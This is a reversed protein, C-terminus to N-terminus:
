RRLDYPPGPPFQVAATGDPRLARESYLLGTTMLTARLSISLPGQGDAGRCPEPSAADFSAPGTVDLTLVCGDGYPAAAAFSPAEAFTEGATPRYPTLTLARGARDILWLRQRLIADTGAARFTLSLAAADASPAPIEAIEAAVSDIWPGEPRPGRLTDPAAAFQAANSWSGALARALDAPSPGAADLRPGGACASLALAALGATVLALISRM